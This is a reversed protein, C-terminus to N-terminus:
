TPLKATAPWRTVAPLGNQDSGDSLRLTFSNGVPSKIWLDIERIDVNDIKRGAQVYNGGKTFDGVLKLAPKGDRMAEPDLALSGIRLKGHAALHGVGQGIMQDALQEHVVPRRNQQDGVLDVFGDHSAISSM